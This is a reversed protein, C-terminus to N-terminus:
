RARSGSRRQRPAPVHDASARKAWQERAVQPSRGNNRWAGNRIARCARVIIGVAFLVAVCALPVTLHVRPAIHSWGTKRASYERLMSVVFSLTVLAIILKLVRDLM